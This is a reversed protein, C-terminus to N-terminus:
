DCNRKVTSLRAAAILDLATIAAVACLAGEANKRKANFPDDAAAKLVAIDFADFLLRTWLVPTRTPDSVLAYGTALERLGFLTVVAGRSADVGVFDAVRRPFFTGMFGLAIANLGVFGSITSSVAPRARVRDTAFSASRGGPLPLRISPGQKLGATPAVVKQRARRLAEPAETQVRRWADKARGVVGPHPAAAGAAAESLSM